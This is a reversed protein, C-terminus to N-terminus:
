VTIEVRERCSARGIQVRGHSRPADSANAPFGPEDAAADRPCVETRRLVHAARSKTQAHPAEQDQAQAISTFRGFFRTRPWESPLDSSFVDSSWDCLSRWEKGVRREESRYEGTAELRTRLTLQFDLNMQRLMEHAFRRGDSFTLLGVKRRRM